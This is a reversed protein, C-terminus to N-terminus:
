RTKNADLMRAIAFTAPDLATGHSGSHMDEFPGANAVLGEPMRYRYRHVHFLGLVRVKDVAEVNAGAAVLAKVVDMHEHAVAMHLATVGNQMCPHACLALFGHAYLVPTTVSKTPPCSM